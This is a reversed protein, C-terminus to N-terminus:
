KRIPQYRYRTTDCPLGSEYAGQALDFRHKAVYDNEWQETRFHAPTKTKPKTKIFEAYLANIEAQRSM